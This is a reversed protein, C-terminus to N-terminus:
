NELTYMSCFTSIIMKTSTFEKKQRRAGFQFFSGQTWSYRHLVFEMGLQGLLDLYKQSDLWRWSCSWFNWGNTPFCVFPFLNPHRPSEIMSDRYPYVPISLNIHQVSRGQFCAQGVGWIFPDWSGVRRWKWPQFIRATRNWSFTIKWCVFDLLLGLRGKYLNLSRMEVTMGIKKRKNKGWGILPSKGYSEPAIGYCQLALPALWEFYHREQHLKM